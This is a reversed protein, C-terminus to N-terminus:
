RREQLQCGGYQLWEWFVECSGEIRYEVSQVSPVAFVTSNLERLLMGSGASTSANPILARLDEFDVIARGAEDVSVSRLANATTDSFWSHLGAAREGEAPGQLLQRIAAELDGGPAGPRTVAVTSDGLSFYITLEPAGDGDPAGNSERAVGGEPAGNAGPPMGAATDPGRGADPSDRAAAPQDVTESDAPGCGLIAAGTILM